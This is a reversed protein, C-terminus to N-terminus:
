WVDSVFSYSRLFQLLDTIVLDHVSEILLCVYGHSSKSANGFTLSGSCINAMKLQELQVLVSVSAM